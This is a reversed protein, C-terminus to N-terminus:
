SRPAELVTFPVFNGCKCLVIKGDHSFCPTQAQTWEYSYGNEESQLTRLLQVTVLMDLDKVYVIGEETTDVSGTATM